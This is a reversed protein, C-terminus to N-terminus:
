KEPVNAEVDINLWRELTEELLNLEEETMNNIRATSHNKGEMNFLLADLDQDPHIGTASWTDDAGNIYIVRELESTMWKQATRTLTPNFSAVVKDPWFVASPEEGAASIYESFDDTNYGYYGMESGMQYYFPGYRNISQDSFFDVGSVSLFHDLLEETDAEDDPISTCDGGYQWFSFSYELVALEFAAEIGLRDFSNQQGKGYWKVLPLYEEKNKLLRRQISEIKERCNEDGVNDLFDYIRKDKYDVNIPAVYPVSVDVDDPYFYRYFLTTMGGKSIGTSLYPGTYIERFIQNIRHLDHTAQTLNLYRYDISDPMSAGYYRHEVDIQNAGMYNALESLRNVPRDYGRTILVNPADFDHHNLYVRQYFHGADPTSHDLPQRIMLRYSSEYGTPAKIEKFIVDEQLFLKKEIESQACLAFSCALFFLIIYSKM